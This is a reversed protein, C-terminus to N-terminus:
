ERPERFWREADWYRPDDDPEERPPDADPMRVFV